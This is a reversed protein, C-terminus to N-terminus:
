REPPILYRGQAIKQAVVLAQNVTNITERIDRINLDMEDLTEKLKEVIVPILNFNSQIEVSGTHMKDTMQQILTLVELINRRIATQQQMKENAQTIIEGMGIIVTCMTEMTAVTDVSEQKIKVIAYAMKAIEESISDTEKKSSEALKRIEGAVVAFGRGAEGAHAAEIAANMALINTKVAITTIISNAQELSESQLAIQTLEDNLNELMKKSIQSTKHLKVTIRHAEHLQTSIQGSNATLEEMSQMAEKTNVAQAETGDNLISLNRNVEGIPITTQNFFDSRLETKRYLLENDKSIVRLGEFSQTIVMALNKSINLQKGQIETNMGQIIKQVQDHIHILLVQLAGIEDDRRKKLNIDQLTIAKSQLDTLLTQAAGITNKLPKVLLFLVGVVFLLAVFAMTIVFMFFLDSLLTNADAFMISTPITSVVVWDVVPIKISSVLQKKATVSFSSSALFSSRYQELGRSTFFDRQVTVPTSIIIIGKEDLVYFQQQLATNSLVNEFLLRIPELSFDAGVVGIDQQNRDFVTSSLTISLKKTETDVYPASYAIGQGENKARTFWETQTSDFDDPLYRLKSFILTGGDKYSVNNAYYLADIDSAFASTQRLYNQLADISSNQENLATIGSVSWRILTAYQKLLENIQTQFLFLLAHTNLQEQKRLSSRESLFSFSSFLVMIVAVTILPVTILLRKLSISKLSIHKFYTVFTKRTPKVFSKGKREAM